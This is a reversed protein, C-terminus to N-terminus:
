STGAYHGRGPIVNRVGGVPEPVDGVYRPILHIHVHGVTQGATAGINSGVNYGGPKLTADLPDKMRRLLEYVAVVEEEDLEFFSDVHRRPDGDEPIELIPESRRRNLSKTKGYYIAASPRLGWLADRQPSGFELRWRGRQM